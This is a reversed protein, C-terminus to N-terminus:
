KEIKEKEREIELDYSTQVSSINEQVQSEPRKPIRFTFTSGKGPSAKVWVKGGHLEVFRKVLALGLGVGGHKRSISEDIQVFPHFVREYDAENIGIGEDKVSIEVIDEKLEASINVKGGESSFKIANNLLNYLIQKFKVKDVIITKLGKEVKYEIRINKGASLSSLVRQVEEIVAPIDVTEYYLEINGLELRSIDLVDNIVDLLHNGSKSINEAYRKQKENLPGFTESLLLDSFGIVANLPTRLEHSMNVIFTTKARNATEAAMKAQLMKEEAQKRETIDIMIGLLVSDEENVGSFVFKSFMVQHVLGDAFKLSAEYVQTRKHKVLEIDMAHHKEAIKPSIFNHISKGLIEEKKMRVLTEFGKNCAIYIGNRDKCFAPVPISDVLKRLSETQQLRVTELRKVETLDEVLVIGGVLEFNESILPKYTIAVPTRGNKESFIYKLDYHVPVEPLCTISKKPNKGELLNLLSFSIKEKERSGSLNVFSENCLTIVGETDFQAIGGPFEEFLTRYKRESARLAEENKRRESIDRGISLVATEGDYEILRNNIEQPVVTGDRRLSDMEFIFYGTQKLKEIQQGFETLHINTRLDKIHKGLMKSRTYGFIECAVHNAELVRGKMDHILISDSSSELLTKFKKDPNEQKVRLSKWRGDRRIILKEGAEILYFVEDPSLDEERIMFLPRIKKEPINEAFIRRLEKLSDTISKGFNGVELNIRLYRWNGAHIFKIIEKQPNGANWDFYIGSTEPQKVSLIETEQLSIIKLRSKEICSEIDLESNSLLDKASEASESDPVLWICRENQQLGAKIYDVILETREEPEKYVATLGNSPITSCFCFESKVKKKQINLM